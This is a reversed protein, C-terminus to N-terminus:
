AAQDETETAGENTSEEGNVLGTLEEFLNGTNVANKKVDEPVTVKTEDITGYDSLKMNLNMHMTIKPSITENEIASADGGYSYVFNVVYTLDTLLCDKNFTYVANTNKFSDAVKAEGGLQSIIETVNMGSASLAEMFTNGPIALTYGEDTKAFEADNLLKGNVISDTVNRVDISTKTWKEDDKNKSYQVYKDDEKQVYLESETDRGMADKSLNGHGTDGAMDINFALTIPIAQGFMSIEYDMGLDCHYNDHNQNAMYRELLEKANKPESSGCGVLGGLM